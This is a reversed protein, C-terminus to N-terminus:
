RADAGDLPPQWNVSACDLRYRLWPFSMRHLPFFPPEAGGTLPLGFHRLVLSLVNENSLVERADLTHMAVTTDGNRVYLRDEGSGFIWAFEEETVGNFMTHHYYALPTYTQQSTAKLFRLFSAPPAYLHSIYTDQLSDATIVALDDPGKLPQWSAIENETWRLLRREGSYMERLVLLGAEPLPYPGDYDDLLIGDLRDVVYM